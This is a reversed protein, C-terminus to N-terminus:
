FTPKYIYLLTPAKAPAPVTDFSKGPSPAAYFNHPEAVSILVM